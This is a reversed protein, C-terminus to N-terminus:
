EPKNYDIGGLYYTSNRHSHISLYDVADKWDKFQLYDYHYPHQVYYVDNVQYIGDSYNTAGYLHKTPEVHIGILTFPKHIDDVEPMDLLEFLTNLFKHVSFNRDTTCVAAKYLRFPQAWVSGSHDPRTDEVSKREPDAWPYTSYYICKM